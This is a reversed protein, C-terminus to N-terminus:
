RSDGSGQLVGRVARDALKRVNVRAIEELTYGLESALQSIYWLLDGVEDAIAARAEDTVVGGNDRLLKKLKGQIEGAEGLGLGLYSLAEITTASPYIATKATEHQYDLFNM